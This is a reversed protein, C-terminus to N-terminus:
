TSDLRALDLCTSGLRTSDLRHLDLRTAVQLTASMIILKLPGPVSAGPAGGGTLQQRRLLVVRSLLGLLLDTNVGREHAQSRAFAPAALPM